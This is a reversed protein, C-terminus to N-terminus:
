FYAEAGEPESSDEIDPLSDFDDDEINTSGRGLRDGDKYFQVGVLEANIKKGYNNDQAWVNIVANVYCGPYLVGESEIPTKDRHIIQNPKFAEKRSASVYLTGEEFGAYDAKESSDKLCVSSPTPMKGKLDAEAVGRLAKQMAKHAPSEKPMIFTAGYRGYQDKEFLNPFALRVNSLKVKQAM